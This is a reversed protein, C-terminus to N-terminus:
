LQTCGAFSSAGLQKCGRLTLSTLVSCNFQMTSLGACELRMVRLKPPSISQLSALDSTETTVVCRRGLWLTELLPLACLARM